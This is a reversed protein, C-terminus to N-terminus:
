PEERPVRWGLGRVNLIVGAGLRKRLGHIVVEIANSGIPENWGYVHEELQERSLITGPRELLAHLVAFERASLSQSVNRYIIERTALDLQLTETGIRSQAHGDRRRIVARLRAMLERFEFPKIIYDDAGTDLAEVREDVGDRATLILVPTRDGGTRASRLVDMGSRRPLGLDLLVATYTSGAMAAQGSVGDQIWDVSFGSEKIAKTLDTGIMVDDEILLIRM